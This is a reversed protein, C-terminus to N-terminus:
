HRGFRQDETDDQEEDAHHHPFELVDASNAFVNNRGPDDNDEYIDQPNKMLRQDHLILGPRAPYQPSPRHGVQPLVRQGVEGIFKEQSILATGWRDSRGVQKRFNAHFDARRVGCTM